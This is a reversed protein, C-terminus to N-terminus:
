PAVIVLSARSSSKFTPRGTHCLINIDMDTRTDPNMDMDANMYMDMVIYIDM